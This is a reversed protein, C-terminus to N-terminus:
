RTQPERYTSNGQEAAGWIGYTSIGQYDEEYDEALGNFRADDNRNKQGDQGLRQSTGLIDGYM